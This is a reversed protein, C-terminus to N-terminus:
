LQAICGLYEASAYRVVDLPADSGPRRASWGLSGRARRPFARQVQDIHSVVSRSARVRRMARLAGGPRHVKM